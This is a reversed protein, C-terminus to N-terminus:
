NEKFKWIYGGASKLQANCCKNINQYPIETAKSAQHGNEFEAVLNGDKDFQQVARIPPKEKSGYLHSFKNRVAQLQMPHIGWKTKLASVSFGNRYYDLAIQELEPDTYKSKFNPNGQKGRKGHKIAYEPKRPKAVGLEFAQRLLSYVQPESMDTLNAIESVTLSKNRYLRIAKQKQEPKIM